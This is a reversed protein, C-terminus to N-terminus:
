KLSLLAWIPLPPHVSSQCPLSGSLAYLGDASFAAEMAPAGPKMGTKWTVVERGDFTDMVFIHGEVVVLLHQQNSSFKMSSIPAMEHVGYLELPLPFSLFPGAKYQRADFMSIIGATCGVAFVLGEEDMAAHAPGPTDMCAQAQCTRLDWILLRKEQLVFDPLEFWM